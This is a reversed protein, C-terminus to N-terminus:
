LLLGDLHRPIKGLFLVFYRFGWLIENKEKKFRVDATMDWFEVCSLLLRSNRLHTFKEYQESLAVAKGVWSCRDTM